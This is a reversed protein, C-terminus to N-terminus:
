NARINEYKNEESNTDKMGKEYARGYGAKFEISEYKIDDWDMYNYAMFGQQFDSMKIQTNM